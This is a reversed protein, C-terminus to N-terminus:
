AIAAKDYKRFLDNVAEVLLAHAPQERELALAKLQRWAARNLRLTQGKLDIGRRSVSPEASSRQPRTADGPKRLALSPAKAM